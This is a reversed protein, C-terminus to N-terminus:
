AAERSIWIGWGCGLSWPKDQLKLADNEEAAVNATVLLLWLMVFCTAAVCRGDLRLLRFPM